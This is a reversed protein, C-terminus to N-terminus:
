EYRLAEVPDLNAAKVAPYLGALLGVVFMVTLGMVIWGWPMEFSNGVARSIGYGVLVGMMVGIVGGIMCITISETLFQMRIAKKTAGIAKSLGIERTRENVSVLMINMLGIGAGILTLIGIIVTAMQVYSLNELVQGALKDSKSIDYDPDEGLPIRRVIRFIGNAEDVARNLQSPDRVMVSLNYSTRDDGFSRKANVVPIMVTNDSTVQSAGKPALVGIVRYKKSGINVLKNVATDPVGFLKRAVDSGLLLVPQANDTESRTFNRGRDITWGSVQLYNEDIGIMRVNPNTKKSEYKIVTNGDVDSSMTMVAPYKFQDRFALCQQLTIVPNTSASKRNRRRRVQGEKKIIFTNAGMESFSSTMSRNIGETATLIGILAMIGFVIILLTLATRLKNARIARLALGINDTITM